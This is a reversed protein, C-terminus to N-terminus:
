VRYYDYFVRIPCELRLMPFPFSVLLDELSAAGKMSKWFKEEVDKRVQGHRDVFQGWLAIIQKLMTFIFDCGTRPGSRIHFADSHM